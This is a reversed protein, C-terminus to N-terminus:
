IIAVRELVGAVSDARDDIAYLDAVDLFLNGAPWKPTMLVVPRRPGTTDLHTAPQHQAGCCQQTELRQVVLHRAGM